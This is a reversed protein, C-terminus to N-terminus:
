GATEIRVSVAGDNLLADLMASPTENEVIL